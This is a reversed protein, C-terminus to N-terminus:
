RLASFATSKMLRWMKGPLKMGDTPTMVPAMARLPSM